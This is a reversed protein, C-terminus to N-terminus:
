NIDLCIDQSPMRLHVNRFVFTSLQRIVFKMGQEYEVIDSVSFHTYVVFRCMANILSYRLGLISYIDKM